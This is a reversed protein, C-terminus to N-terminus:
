LDLVNKIQPGRAYPERFSGCFSSLGGRVHHGLKSRRIVFPAWRAFFPDIQFGRQGGRPLHQRDLCNFIVHFIQRGGEQILQKSICGWNLTCCICHYSALSSLPTDPDSTTRSVGCSDLQSYLSPVYPPGTSPWPFAPPQTVRFPPLLM